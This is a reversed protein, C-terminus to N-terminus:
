TRDLRDALWCRAFSWDQYAQSRSLGLVESAETISLGAFLRLKVLSASRSDVVELQRLCHDIDLLLDADDHSMLLGLDVRTGQNGGRRRTARARASDILVHRMAEAAVRYFHQRDAFNWPRQAGFLRLFVEHVLATPQLTHDTREQRLKNAAMSRLERYVLPVLADLAIAKGEALQRLSVTIEGAAM